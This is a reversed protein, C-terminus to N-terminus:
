ETLAVRLIQGHPSRHSKAVFCDTKWPDDATDDYYGERLLFLVIDVYSMIAPSALIDKIKPIHDKRADVRRSVSSLVLVPINLEKALDHLIKMVVTDSTRSSASHTLLQFFDVVVFDYHNASVEAQIDNVDMGKGSHELSFIRVKKHQENTLNKAIKHALSTKGSMPRGALLIVDGGYIEGLVEDM